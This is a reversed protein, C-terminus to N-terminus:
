EAKRTIGAFQEWPKNILKEVTAIILQDLQEDTINLNKTRIFDKVYEKKVQGQGALDFQKEASMVAIGVWFKIDERQNETTKSKLYPILVGSILLGILGILAMIIETWDINM